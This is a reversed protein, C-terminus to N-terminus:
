HKMKTHAALRQFRGGCAPCTILNSDTEWQQLTTLWWWTGKGNAPGNPDQGDPAPFRHSRRAARVNTRTWGFWEAAQEVNLRAPLHTDHDLEKQTRAVSAGVQQAIAQVTLGEEWLARLQYRNIRGHRQARPIGDLTLRILTAGVGHRAAIQIDSDGAARASSWDQQVRHPVALVLRLAILTTQREVVSRDHETSKSIADAPLRPGLRLVLWRLAQLTPAPERPRPPERPDDQYLWRKVEDQDWARQERRYGTPPPLRRYKMLPGLWLRQCGIALAVDPEAVLRHAPAPHTTM